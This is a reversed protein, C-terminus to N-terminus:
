DSGEQSIKEKVEGVTNIIEDEFVDVGFEDEIRATMEALDISDFGIDNTLSMDDELRKLKDRDKEKEIISNIIDLLKEEIENM